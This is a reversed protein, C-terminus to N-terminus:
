YLWPQRCGSSFDAPQKLTEDPVAETQEAGKFVDLM